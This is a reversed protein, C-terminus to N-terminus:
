HNRIYGEYLANMADLLLPESSHFLEINWAHLLGNQLEGYEDYSSVMPLEQIRSDYEANKNFPYLYIHADQLFITHSASIEDCHMRKPLWANQPSWREYINGKTKSKKVALSDTMCTGWYNAYPKSFVLLPISLSRALRPFPTNEKLKICHYETRDDSKTNSTKKDNNGIDTPSMEFYEFPVVLTITFPIIREKRFEAVVHRIWFEIDSSDCDSYYHFLIDGYEDMLQALLRDKQIIISAHSIIERTRYAKKDRITVINRRELQFICGQRLKNYAKQDVESPQLPNVRDIECYQQTQLEQLLLKFVGHWSPAGLKGM